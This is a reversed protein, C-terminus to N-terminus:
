ITVDMEKLIRQAGGFYELIYIIYRVDVGISRSYSENWNYDNITASFARDFNLGILEGKSNLIPSGSNGGTTDMDYLLGIPVQHNHKMKLVDAPEITQMKQLYVEDIKYDKKTNAKEILGKISTFPELYVGNDPSYGKIRGYTFRLTSNADPVFNSKLALRRMEVLQPMMKDAESFADSYLKFLSKMSELSNLSFISLFPDDIKMLEFPSKNIRKKLKEKQNLISKKYVNKNIFVSQLDQFFDHLGADKVANRNIQSSKQAFYNLVDYELAFAQDNFLKLIEKKLNEAEKDKYVKWEEKTSNNKKIELDNAMSKLSYALSNRALQSLFLVLDANKNIIEYHKEINPIVESFQSFDKSWKKLIEQESYRKELIDTRRFGQLKGRFNKETNSLGKIEKAVKLQLGEDNQAYQELLHIKYAFWDQIIPLLSEKQYKLYQAPQHRYTRGPYGLIFVADNEEAGKYQVKIHKPPNYPKGNEYARFFSFDGNHRPWVWNDTEGGFEGISRPPVYVLRIDNLVKYRFLTYYKNPLMESIEISLEPNKQNEKEEISEINKAILEKIKHIDKLGNTGKLVQASVDEYSLTIRCEVGTKLEKDFEQAYFGYKLYNNEESSLAAVTGFACHHNTLILGQDSVFSGTCGGVKVLADTLGGGKPNFIQDASLEIGAEKLNIEKLMNMPYMGEDWKHANSTFTLLLSGIFLLYIQKYYYKM